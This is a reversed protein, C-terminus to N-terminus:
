PDIDAGAIAATAAAFLADHRERRVFGDLLADFGTRDGEAALALMSGITQEDPTLVPSCPRYVTMCEPWCRAVAEALHLLAKAAVLSEFRTALESLPDRRLKACLSLIRSGMVLRGAAPGLEAIFVPRALHAIVRTSRTKPLEARAM